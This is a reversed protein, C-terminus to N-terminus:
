EARVIVKVNAIVEKHVHVDIDYEGITLNHTKSFMKKDILDNSENVKNIINLNSIHGFVKSGNTKLTFVYPKSEIENKVVNALAIDQQKKENLVALNQQLVKSSQETYAVGLRQRIIVNRAYGDAVDVVDNKKGVNKVDQLLIVKM